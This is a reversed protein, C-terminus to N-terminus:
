PIIYEWSRYPYLLEEISLFLFCIDISVELPQVIVFCGFAGMWSRFVDVSELRNLLHFEM